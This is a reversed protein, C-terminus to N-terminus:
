EQFRTDIDGDVAKTHIRYTLHSHGHWRWCKEGGLAMVEYTQGCYTIRDGPQPEIGALFNVDILFDVAHSNIILSCDDTQTRTAAKTLEISLNGLSCVYRGLEDLHQNRWRHLAAEGRSLMGM